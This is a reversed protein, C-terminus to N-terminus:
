LVYSKEKGPGRNEWKREKRKKKKKEEQGKKMELTNRVLIKGAKQELSQNKKRRLFAKRTCSRQLGFKNLRDLKFKLMFILRNLNPKYINGYKVRNQM